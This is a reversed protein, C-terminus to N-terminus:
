RQLSIINASGITILCHYCKSYCYSGEWMTIAFDYVRKVIQYRESEVLEKVCGYHKNYIINKVDRVIDFEQHCLSCFRFPAAQDVACRTFNSVSDALLNLEETCGEEQDQCSIWSINVLLVTLLGTILRKYIMNTHKLENHDTLDLVTRLFTSFVFDSTEKANRFTFIQWASIVLRLLFQYVNWLFGSM